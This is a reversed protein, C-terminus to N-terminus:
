YDALSSCVVNCGPVPCRMRPVVDPGRGETPEESHSIMDLIATREYNHPCKSSSVPDKMDVLTIPCKTNIRETTIAIDDDENQAQTGQGGVTISQSGSAEDPFWTSAHPLPPATDEPYHADHVMKRFSVYDNHSAYRDMKSTNQYVERREGLSQRLIDLASQVPETTSNHSEEHPNEDVEEGEDNVAARRPQKSRIQSAGLIGYTAAGSRGSMINTDLEKLVEETWKIEEGSDIAKRVYPEIQSTLDETAKTMAEIAREEEEYDALAGDTGRLTKQKKARSQMGYLCDNIDTAATNLRLQVNSLREKLPDLRHNRPLSRLFQQAKENLPHSLPQYTPM